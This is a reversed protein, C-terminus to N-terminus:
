QKLSTYFHESGKNDHDPLIKIACVSQCVSPCFWNILGVKRMCVPTILGLSLGGSVMTHQLTGTYGKSTRYLARSKKRVCVFSVCFGTLSGSNQIPYVTVTPVKSRGVCLAKNHKYQMSGYVIPFVLATGYSPIKSHDLWLTQPHTRSWGARIASARFTTHKCFRGTCRWCIGIYYVTSDPKYTCAGIVRPPIM